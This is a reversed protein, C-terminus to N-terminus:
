IKKKVLINKIYTRETLTPLQLSPTIRTKVSKNFDLSLPDFSYSDIDSLSTEDTDQDFNDVVEENHNRNDNLNQQLENYSSLIGFLESIKKSVVNKTLDFVSTIKDGMILSLGESPKHFSNQSINEINKEKKDPKSEVSNFRKSSYYPKQKLLFNSTIAEVFNSEQFKCKSTKSTTYFSPEVSTSNETLNSFNESATKFSVETKDCVSNSSSSYGLNKKYRDTTLGNQHKGKTGLPTKFIGQKMLYAFRDFKNYLNNFYNDNTNAIRSFTTIREPISSQKKFYNPSNISYSNVISSSMKKKLKSELVNKNNVTNSNKKNRKFNKSSTAIKNKRRSKVIAKNEQSVFKTMFQRQSKKRHDIVVLDSSSSSRYANWSNGYIRKRAELDFLIENSVM